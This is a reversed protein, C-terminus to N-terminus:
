KILYVHRQFGDFKDDLISKSIKVKRNEFLTEANEGPNKVESLDFRANVPETTNNVAILYVGGDTKKVLFEIAPTNCKIVPAKITSALAPTLKKIERFLEKMRAWHSKSKPHDAWYNIGRIGNIIATYTEFEQEAPTLDRSAWFCYGGGLMYIWCPKGEKAGMESMTKAYYSVSQLSGAPPYVYHDVEVVEGPFDLKNNKLFGLGWSNENVVTLHYPEMQKVEKCYTMVFPYNTRGWEITFEEDYIYWALVAPHDKLSKISEDTIKKENDDHPGPFKLQVKVNNEQACDLLEVTRPYGLYTPLTFSNIGNEAYYKICEQSQNGELAMGIPFFPKGDVVAMRSFHDAKVENKSPPLKRFEKSASFAGGGTKLEAKLTYDGNTLNVIGIETEIEQQLKDVAQSLVEKGASDYIKLSLQAGALLGRGLNLQVRVLMKDERTYLDYQTLVSLSEPTELDKVGSYCLNGSDNARLSLALRYKAGAQCNVNGLEIAQEIGKKLEVSKTFKATEKNKQDTLRASLSYVQDQKTNNYLSVAVSASNASVGQLEASRCGAYYNQQIERDIDIQGFRTPTHFGGYTPSWCSYEQLVHNERCINFGWRDSSTPDIGLEGFPLFIETSWYKGDPDTYTVAKWNGNWSMDGNFSDYQVGIQNVALHYYYNRSLQPDIFLELSPDNWINGDWATVGCKNKGAERDFCKVGIYIGKANYWVQAETPDKVTDGSSSVFKMKPVNEWIKDDRKGTLALDRDYYPPQYKPVETLVKKVNGEETELQQTENKMPQYATPLGNELQVADIWAIGKELPAIKVMDAYPSNKEKVFSTAYRQWEGTLTFTEEKGLISGLKVKLGAPESKMYASLTYKENLTAGVRVSWLTLGSSPKNDPNIIRMSRKGDYAVTNDTIFNKQWEEFHIAWYPDALGWHPVGWYDPLDDLTCQEFSSNHLINKSGANSVTNKEGTRNVVAKLDKIAVDVGYAYFSIKGASVSVKDITGVLANGVFAKIQPGNVTIRFATWPADPGSPLPKALKGLIDHRSDAKYAISDGRCYLMVSGQESNRLLIGFHQDKPYVKLCRLKFDIEYDNWDDAGFNFDTWSAGPVNRLEGDIVKWALPNINLKKFGSDDAFSEQIVIPTRSDEAAASNGAAMGACVLLASVIIKNIRM